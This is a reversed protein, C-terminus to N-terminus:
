CVKELEKWKEYERIIMPLYDKKFREINCDYIKAASAKKHGGGNFKLALSAVDFDIKSRFSLSIDKGDEKVFISFNVGRLSHSIRSLGKKDDETLKLNKNFSDPYYAVSIEDNAYMEISEIIMAILKKREITEDEFIKYYYYEPDIDFKKFLLSLKKFLRHNIFSFRLGGTDFIIGAYLASAMNYDLNKVKLVDIIIESTSSVNPLNINLKAFYEFTQHHDISISNSIKNFINAFDGLMNKSSSDVSIVYDFDEAKVNKYDLFYKDFEDKPVIISFFKNYNKQEVGVFVRKKKNLLFRLLAYASGIADPDPDTHMLILVKDIKKLIRRLKFFIKKM